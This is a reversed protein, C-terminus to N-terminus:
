AGKEGASPAQPQPEDQKLDFALADKVLRFTKIVEGCQTVAWRDRRGTPKGHGLDRIGM